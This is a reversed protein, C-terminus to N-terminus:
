NNTEQYVNHQVQYVFGSRIEGIEEVTTDDCTLIVCLINPNSGEVWIEYQQYSNSQIKSSFKCM